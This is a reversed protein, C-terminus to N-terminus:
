IRPIRFLDYIPIAGSAEAGACSGCDGCDGRNEFMFAVHRKIANIAMDLQNVPIAKTTFSIEIGQEIDLGDTPWEQDPLLLIESLQVGRKLYFVTTAVTTDFVTAVSHKVSDITDIPNRRVSIRDEFEDILLTYANDTFDRSTYSQGWATCSDILTQLLADFAATTVGLYTKMDALSVPSTGATIMEYLQYNKLTSDDSSNRLNSELM